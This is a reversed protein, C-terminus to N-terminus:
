GGAGVEGSVDQVSVSLIRDFSELLQEVVVFEDKRVVGFHRLRALGIVACAMIMAASESKVTQRINGHQKDYEINKVFFAVIYNYITRLVSVAANEMRLYRSPAENFLITFYDRNELAFELFASTAHKIVPLGPKIAARSFEDEFEQTMKRYLSSLIEFFIEEKSSFHRFITGEAVGAAHALSLTSTAYVGNEAFLKIAANLICEKKTM